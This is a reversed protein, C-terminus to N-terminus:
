NRCQLRIVALRQTEAPHGHQKADPRCGQVSSWYRAGHEAAISRSAGSHKPQKPGGPYLPRRFSSFVRRLKPQKRSFLNRRSSIGSLSRFMASIPVSPLGGALLSLRARLSSSRRHVTARAVACPVFLLAGDGFTALAVSRRFFLGPCLAVAALGGLRNGSFPLGGRHAAFCRRHDRASPRRDGPARTASAM